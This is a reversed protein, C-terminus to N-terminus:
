KSGFIKRLEIRARELREAEKPQLRDGAKEIYYNLMSIARQLKKEKIETNKMLAEYLARALEKAPLNFISAPLDIADATQIVQRKWANKKNKVM